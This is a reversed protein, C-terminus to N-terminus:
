RSVSFTLAREDRREENKV